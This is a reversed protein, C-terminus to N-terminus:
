KMQFNSLKLANINHRKVETWMLVFFINNKIYIKTEGQRGKKKRRQCSPAVKDNKCFIM